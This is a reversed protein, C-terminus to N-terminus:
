PMEKPPSSPASKESAPPTGKESSSPAGEREAPAAHGASEGRLVQVAHPLLPRLLELYERVGKPSGPLNVVLTSGRTGAVGRSLASMPTARSTERRLFEAIGPAERDLIERTAEPTVDRPALGTGGSTIVVDLRDHDTYHLLRDVIADREDPVVERRVVSYGWDSLMQEALPGSEDRHTGAAARDSVVLVAARM